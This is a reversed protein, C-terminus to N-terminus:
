GKTCYQRFMVELREPCIQNVTAENVKGPIGAHQKLFAYMLRDDNYEQTERYIVASSSGLRRHFIMCNNDVMEYPVKRDTSDGVSEFEDIGIYEMKNSWVKRKCYAWGKGEVEKLITKLHNEEWWIDDDAFTVYPTNAAMMGISRLSSGAAPGQVINSPIVISYRMSGKSTESFGAVNYPSLTEFTKPDPYLFKDDRKDDWLLIHEYPVSQKNMSDILKFLGDKGTTPTIVTIPRPSM